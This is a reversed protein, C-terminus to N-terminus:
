YVPQNRFLPLYPRMGCRKRRRAGQPISLRVWAKGMKEGVSWYHNDLMSGYQFIELTPGDNGFGPLRLHIGSIHAGRIGTLKDLWDGSLDREPPVPVCGFVERYFAALRRWDKAVLNAHAYKTPMIEEKKSLPRAPTPL